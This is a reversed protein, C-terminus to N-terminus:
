GTLSEGASLLWLDPARGTAPTGLHPSRCTEITLGGRTLQPCGKALGEAVHLSKVPTDEARPGGLGVLTLRPTLARRNSIGQSMEGHAGKAAGGAGPRPGTATDWPDCARQRHRSGAQARGLGRWPSSGEWLVDPTPGLSM